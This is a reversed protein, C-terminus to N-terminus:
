LLRERLWARAFRWARDVKSPSVEFQKACEAVTLGGYIRAEVIRAMLADHEALQELADDVISADVPGHGGFVISSRAAEHPVGGGRKKRRKRRHRDALVDRCAAGFCAKFRSDPKDGLQSRRADQRREEERQLELFADHALDGPTVSHQHRRLLAEAISCLQTYLAQFRKRVDHESSEQPETGMAVPSTYGRGARGPITGKGVPPGRTALRHM